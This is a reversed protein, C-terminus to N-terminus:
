RARSSRAPEPSRTGARAGDLFVAVVGAAAEEAGLQGDAVMGLAAKVLGSLLETLLEPALGPRLVGDAIGRRFLDRVPETLLADVDPHDDTSAQGASLAVYKSGVAIFGRVLRAIAQDVPLGQLDADAVRAALEEVGTTAMARLLAERNPFYRYLTARSVGAARAVENMSVIRGREALSAAASDVIAAATRDRLADGKSM